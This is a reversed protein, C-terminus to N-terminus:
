FGQRIEALFLQSIFFLNKYYYLKYLYLKNIKIQTSLRVGPLTPKKEIKEFNYFISFVWFRRCFIYDVTDDDSVPRPTRRASGGTSM